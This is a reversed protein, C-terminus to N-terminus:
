AATRKPCLKAHNSSQKLTMSEGCKKCAVVRRSCKREHDDPCPKRCWPCRRQGDDRRTSAITTADDVESEPPVPRALAPDMHYNRASAVSQSDEEVAAPSTRDSSNAAIRRSLIEAPRADPEDRWTVSSRSDKPRKEAVSSALRSSSPKEAGYIEKQRQEHALKTLVADLHRQECFQVHAAFDLHRRTASISSNSVFFSEGCIPCPAMRRDCIDLHSVDCFRGCWTCLRNRQFSECHSAAASTSIGLSPALPIVFNRM